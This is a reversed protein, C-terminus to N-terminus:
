AYKKTTTNYKYVKYGSANSVKDWSIELSTANKEKLALGEIKEYYGVNQM